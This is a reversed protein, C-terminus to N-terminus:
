KKTSYTLKDLANASKLSTEVEALSYDAAKSQIISSLDNGTAFNDDDEVFWSEAVNSTALPCYESHQGNNDYYTIYKGAAGTVSISGDGIKLVVTQDEKSYNYNM